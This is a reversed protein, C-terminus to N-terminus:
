TPPFSRLLRRSAAFLALVVLGAAPALPMAGSAFCAAADVLYLSSLAVGTIVPAPLSRWARLLRALAAALCVVALGAMWPAAGPSPQRALAAAGLCALAAASASLGAASWRSGVPEDDTSAHLSAGTMFLAYLAAWPLRAAADLLPGAGGTGTWHTVAVAGLLVDLGRLSGLALCGALRHRKLALHYGGTLLIMLAVLALVPRGLVAAVLLALGWLQYQAARVAGPGLAGRPLPREPKATRDDELDVRANQAMGAALLCTGILVAALLPVLVDTAATGSAPAGLALCAGALVDAAASLLLPARLVEAWARLAGTAPPAAGPGSM